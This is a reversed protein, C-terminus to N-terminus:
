FGGEQNRAELIIDRGRSTGIRTAGQEIFHCAQEYSRIGGSAKIGWKQLTNDNGPLIKKIVNQIYVLDEPSAGRTSLGTSTKIVSIGAHLAMETCTMIEQPTLLATELIVKVLAGSSADMMEKFEQALANGDGSKVFSINQVFDIEDAGAHIAQLAEQKKIASDNYGLPFGVVTCVLVPTDKLINKAHAVYCPPICVARFSCAIAEQCLETIQSASVDARLNTSDILAALSAANKTKLFRQAQAIDQLVLSHPQNKSSPAAQSLTM